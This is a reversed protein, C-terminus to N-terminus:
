VNCFYSSQSYAISVLVSDCLLSFIGSQCLLTLLELPLFVVHVVVDVGFVLHDAVLVSLLAVQRIEHLTM